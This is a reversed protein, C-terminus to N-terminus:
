FTTGFGISGYTGEGGGPGVSGVTSGEVEHVFQHGVSITVDVPYEPVIDIIFKTFAGVRSADYGLTGNFSGEPGIIFSGFRYGARAAGYYTSFATSYEGELNFYFPSKESTEISAASKFGVDTGRTQNNPDDPSLNAHQYDVGVFASATFYDRIFQYGVMADSQWQNARVRTAPDINYHYHSLSGSYRLMVGDKGIDGNWAVITGDFVYVSDPAFDVGAYAVFAQPRDNGALACQPMGGFAALLGLVAYKGTKM